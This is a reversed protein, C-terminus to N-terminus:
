EVSCVWAVSIAAAAHLQKATSETFLLGQWDAVPRRLMSSALYRLMQLTTPQAVCVCLRVTQPLLVLHIAGTSSPDHGRCAERAAVSLNKITM